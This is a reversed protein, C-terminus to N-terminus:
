VTLNILDSICLTLIQSQGHLLVITLTPQENTNSGELAFVTIPILVDVSWACGDSAEWDIERALATAKTEIVPRNMPVNMAVGQKFWLLVAEDIEHHKSMGAYKRTPTVDNLM